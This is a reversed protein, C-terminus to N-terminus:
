ASQVTSSAFVVQATATSRIKIRTGAPLLAAEGGRLTLTQGASSIQSEGLALVISVAPSHYTDHAGAACHLVSLSFDDVSSPYEHWGSHQAAPLIHPTISQAIIVRLLEDVAVTKPTLGARLVNDSRAMIEINQGRLYAHPLQALQEIGQGAQLYVLNLLYFSLLGADLQAVPMDMIRVTEHLWYDPNNPDNPPTQQLLPLLWQAVTHADSRLIRGYAAALGDRQIWAQLPQLSPRTALQAAIYDLPAFGHLLWFDSLAVMMEPKHNDDRYLRAPDHLAVGAAEERAFGAQAQAKNPHVQISLPAAVDLLKLLFPLQQPAQATTKAFVQQHQPLWQNLAQWEGDYVQAPAAPHDGFWLEASPQGVLDPRETLEALFQTGGWAYHQYAGRLPYIM